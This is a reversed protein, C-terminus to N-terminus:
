FRNRVIPPMGGPQGEARGLVDVARNGFVVRGGRHQTALMNAIRMQNSQDSDNPTRDSSIENSICICAVEDVGNVPLGNAHIADTRGIADYIRHKNLYSRVNARAEKSPFLSM